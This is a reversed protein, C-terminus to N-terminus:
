GERAMVRQKKEEVIFPKREEPLNRQELIELDKRLLTGVEHFEMGQWALLDMDTDFAGLGQHLCLLWHATGPPLQFEFDFIKQPGDMEIWDSFQQQHTAQKGASTWSILLLSYCYDGIMEPVKLTPHTTTHITVLLKKRKVQIDTTCSGMRNFKYVPNIDAGKLQRLQLFRNDLIEKRFLSLMKGYLGSSKLQPHYYKIIHNIESALKNVHAARQAQYRFEANKLKPSKAPAPRVRPGLKAGNTFVFNGLKGKLPFISDVKAM